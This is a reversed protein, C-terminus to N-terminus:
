QIPNYDLGCLASVEADHESTDDILAPWLALLRAMANACYVSALRQDPHGQETLSARGLVVAMTFLERAIQGAAIM